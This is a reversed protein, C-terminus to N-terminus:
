HFIHRGICWAEWPAWVTFLKGAIHSVWTWDRPQSSGRSFPMAFWELIRGQLIRHVSSGPPSYDMPDCLIQCSQAVICWFSLWFMKKKGMDKPLNLFLISDQIIIRFQWPIMRYLFKMEIENFIFMDKLVESSVKYGLIMFRWMVKRRSGYQISFTM